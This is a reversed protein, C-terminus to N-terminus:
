AHWRYDNLYSFVKGCSKTQNSKSMVRGELVTGIGGIRHKIMLQFKFPEECLKKYSPEDFNTRSQDAILLDQISPGSWWKFLPINVSPVVNSGTLVNVPVIKYCMGVTRDLLKSVKTRAEDFALLLIKTRKIFLLHM